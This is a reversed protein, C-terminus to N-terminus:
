ERAEVKTPLTLYFSAGRPSNDRAWLRGGHSEVISRCIRLGMGTGHPKTTFFADFIQDAHEPPLGAGTDSVSMLLQEKDARQSKIALERTGDVAKMAEISNTMLNMMVQQLQVRDGMVPPLDAALETRISISYRTAEGRLLVIMDEIIENVDALQWQPTGKQFLLRTRSIIEAARTADNVIRMAAARAKDLNPVDAALWRICGNASTVVAAIPQNVEHALSATLEGMSTVRSVRALDAQAHRLREREQEARKLDTIDINSGIYGAFEGNGTYRPIGSEIVWRYEGDARRLRYEMRFPKRAHFAPLFCDFCGQVDDPHVGETWGTGVEQEMSRGTFELWPKNFYNCLADTGTMWILVPATDAMMQFRAESEFLQEESRKREIIEEQARKLDEIDVNTGYWRSIGGNPERLPLARILFWHYCGDARRMRAEAEFSEGQALAARWKEVFDSKDQPHIAAALEEGRVEDLSKGTYDFWRQNCFEVDGDPLASWVFGPIADIVRGLYFEGTQPDVPTRASASGQGVPENSPSPTV